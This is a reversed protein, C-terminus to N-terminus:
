RGALLSILRRIEEAVDEPQHVTGAVEERVLEAFRRRLRHIASKVAPESLGLKAAVEAYPPNAAAGQLFARLAEFRDRMGEAEMESRLRAVSQNVVTQAWRRDFIEEPSQETEPELRYREEPDLGDWSIIQRGGGRKLRNADRWTNALFHKMAALLFTRFKGKAPDVAKLSEGEILRAFFEQTLDQAEHPQHGRRRVFAYLPYWYNECLQELARRGDLSQGAHLVVSWRTTRFQAAPLHDNTLPDGM